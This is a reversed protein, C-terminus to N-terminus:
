EDRSLFDDLDEAADFDRLIRVPIETPSVYEPEYPLWKGNWDYVEAPRFRKKYDYFSSERFVYGPYYFTMGAGRTYEIEKLMTFIGLSRKSESPEFFAYLGSTSSVAVDLYSVAILRDADYVSFQLTQGAHREEASAIVDFIDRPPNEDFREKHREFMEFVERTTRVEGVHLRLNANKRLIRRQSRSPRFDAVRLRLARVSYLKSSHVFFNHRFYRSGFHRWGRAWLMELLPAPLQRHEFREDIIELENLSM